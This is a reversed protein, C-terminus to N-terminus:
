CSSRPQHPRLIPPSAASSGSWDWRDWAPLAPSKITPSTTSRSRAPTSTACFSIPRAPDTYRPLARSSGIWDSRAWSPQAPSNTTMDTDTTTNNAPTPDTTGAPPTVTVTNALTGAANPDITGTLTITVNQGSALSLGSWVGTGVNYAGVSPTFIP